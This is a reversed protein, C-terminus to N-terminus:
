EERGIGTFVRRFPLAWLLGVGLYVPVELWIPMRGFRGELWSMLSAVAVIYLPLGILLVVLSWRKRSKLNM